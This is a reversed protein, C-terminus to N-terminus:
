NGFLTQRAISSEALIEIDACLNHYKQRWFKTSMKYESFELLIEKDTIGIQKVGLIDIMQKRFSKYDFFAKSTSESELSEIKKKREEALSHVSKLERQLKDIL